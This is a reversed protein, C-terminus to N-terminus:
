SETFFFDLRFWACSSLAKFDLPDSSMITPELKFDDTLTKLNSHVVCSGM